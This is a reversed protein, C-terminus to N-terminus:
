GGHPVVIEIGIPYLQHNSSPKTGIIQIEDNDVPLTEGKQKIKILYNHM